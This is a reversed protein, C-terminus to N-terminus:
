LSYLLYLPKLKEMEFMEQLLLSLSKGAVACDNRSVLGRSMLARPAVLSASDPVYQLLVQEEIASADVAFQWCEKEETGNTFGDSGLLVYTANGEGAELSGLDFKSVLKKYQLWALSGGTRSRTSDCLIKGRHFVSVNGAHLADRLWRRTSRADEAKDSQLFTPAKALSLPGRSWFQHRSSANIIGKSGGKM